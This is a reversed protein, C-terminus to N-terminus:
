CTVEAEGDIAACASSRPGSSSAALNVLTDNSMATEAAGFALQRM